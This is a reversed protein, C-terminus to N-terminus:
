RVRDRPQRADNLGPTSHACWLGQKIGIQSGDAYAANTLSSCFQALWQCETDVPM